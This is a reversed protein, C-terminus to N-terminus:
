GKRRVIEKVYLDMNEVCFKVCWDGFDMGYVREPDTHYGPRPDLALIDLLAERKEPPVPALQEETCHVSLRHKIADHTFSGSADPHCDFLPSYPKIDYIPTGDMLDAGSIYLVPGETGAPRPFTKIRDPGAHPGSCGDSAAAERLEEERHVAAPANNSNGPSFGELRVSSLGLPNPRFPSRSAFVGTHVNGGLRPPRVTPSWGKDQNESFGWILWLHTFREIDRFCDPNQFEKEFTIYAQLSPVLGSQRPIGFKEPFDTHIHGIPRITLTGAPSGTTEKKTM